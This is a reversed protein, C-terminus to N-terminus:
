TEYQEFSSEPDIVRNYLSYLPVFDHERHIVILGYSIRMNWPHFRLNPDVLVRDRNATTGGVLLCLRVIKGPCSQKAVRDSITEIACPYVIGAKFTM